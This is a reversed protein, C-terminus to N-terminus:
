PKPVWAVDTPYPVPAKALVDDLMLIEERDVPAWHSGSKPEVLFNGMLGMDQQYDERVHPHYWFMGADPFKLVYEFTEGPQVAKPQSIGIAGDMRYDHRLGHSHISTEVDTDNM